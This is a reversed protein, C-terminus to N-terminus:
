TFEEVIKICESKLKRNADSDFDTNDSLSYYGEDEIYVIPTGKKTCYVENGWWNICEFKVEIMAILKLIFIFNMVKVFM